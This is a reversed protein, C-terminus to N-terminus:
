PTGQIVVYVQSSVETPLFLKGTSTKVMKKQDGFSMDDNPLGPVIMRQFDSGNWHYFSYRTGFIWLDNPSYANIDLGTRGNSQLPLGWDALNTKLFPVDQGRTEFLYSNTGTTYLKLSDTIGCRLPIVDGVYERVLPLAQNTPDQTDYMKIWLQGDHKLIQVYSEGTPLNKYGLLYIENKSVGALKYFNFNTPAQSYVWGAAYGDKTYVMGDDGAAIFYGNGDTWVSRLEGATQFQYGQWRKTRNDFEGLAPKPPNISWNGVSVMYHDDGTADNAVHKVEEVTGNINSDWRIGNWHLGVYGAFNGNPYQIINGMLYADSDSFAWVGGLKSPFWAVTDSRWTFSRNGAPYTCNTPAPPPCTTCPPEEKKCSLGLFLTM